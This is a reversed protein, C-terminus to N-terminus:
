WWNWLWLSRMIVDLTLSSDFYCYLCWGGMFVKSYCIWLLRHVLLVVGDGDVVITFGVVQFNIFSLPFLEEYGSGFGFYRQM